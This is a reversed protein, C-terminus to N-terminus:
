NVTPNVPPLPAATAASNTTILSPSVPLNCDVASTSTDFGDTTIRINDYWVEFPSTGNQAWDFFGIYDIPKNTPHRNFLGKGDVYVKGDIEIFYEGDPIEDAASTGSNFKAHIRFHHWNTGWNKSSWMTKATSVQAGTGTGLKLGLSSIRSLIASTYRYSRGIVEPYTGDLVIVYSTDNGSYSGDGFSVQTMSGAIGSDSNLGFTTNAYNEVGPVSNDRQGFIKFFKLGQTAKPMKAWFDVYVERINRDPMGYGGSVYGGGTAIPYEAKISGASGACNQTTDTSISVKGGSYAGFSWGNSSPVSSSDFNQFTLEKAGASLSCVVTVFGFLSRCTVIM